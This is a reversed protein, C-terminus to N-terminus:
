CDNGEKVLPNTVVSVTTLAPDVIPDNTTKEFQNQKPCEKTKGRYLLLLLLIFPTSVMICTVPLASIPGEEDGWTDFLLYAFFLCMILLTSRFTLNVLPRIDKCDAELKDKYWSCGLRNGEYLVRGILLQECYTMIIVSICGIVALPPFLGGFVIIIALFSSLQTTLSLKSYLVAFGEDKKETELNRLIRPLLRNSIRFLNSNPGYHKLSYSYCYRLFLLRLPRLFGIYVFKVIYVPAYNILIKSSCQYSYIFPPSFSTQQEVTECSLVITPETGRLSVYNGCSIYSYSSAVAPASFLANYFCDPLIILIALIPLIINNLVTLRELFAIDPVTFYYPRQTAISEDELIENTIFIFRCDKILRWVNPIAKWLLVNNALLKIGALAFTALAIITSNYNIVILVYGIDALGFMVVDLLLVVFRLLVVELVRRESAFSPTLQNIAVNREIQQQNEVNREIFTESQTEASVDGLNFSPRIFIVLYAGVLCFFAFFLILASEEGSMLIASVIWVYEYTYSHTFVTATLYLPLLFFISICAFAAFGKRIFHLLKWFVAVNSGPYDVAFQLFSSHYVSIMKWANPFPQENERRAEEKKEAAEHENLAENQSQHDNKPFFDTNGAFTTMQINKGFGSKDVVPKKTRSIYDYQLLLLTVAVILVTFGILSFWSFLFYNTSNSGCSYTATTPDHQPLENNSNCGFINGDLINIAELSELKSPVSGSLRNVQLSLSASEPLIFSTSLTGTLKNYSLDLNFWSHKQM